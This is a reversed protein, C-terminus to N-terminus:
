KDIDVAVAVIEIEFDFLIIYNYIFINHFKVQIKLFNFFILAPIIIFIDYIINIWVIIIILYLNLFRM